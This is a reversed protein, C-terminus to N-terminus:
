EKWGCLRTTAVYAQGDEDIDLEYCVTIERGFQTGILSYREKFFREQCSNKTIECAQLLENQRFIRIESSEDFFRAELLEAEPPLNTPTVGLTVTSLSRIMAWPKQKGLAFATKLEM